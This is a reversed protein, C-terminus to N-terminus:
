SCAFRVDIVLDTYGYIKEDEGYIQVLTLSITTLLKLSIRVSRIPSLLISTRTRSTTVWFKRIRLLAYQTACGLSIPLESILSSIGLSLHLAENSDATWDTMNDTSSCPCQDESKRAFSFFSRHHLLNLLENFLDFTLYAKSDRRFAFCTSKSIM